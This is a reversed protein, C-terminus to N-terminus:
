LGYNYIKSCEDLMIDASLSKAPLANEHYFVKNQKKNKNCDFIYIKQSRSTYVSSKM